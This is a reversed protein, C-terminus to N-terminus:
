NVLDLTYLSEESVPDRFGGCLYAFLKVDVVIEREGGVNTGYFGHIVSISHHQVEGHRRAPSGATGRALALSLGDVVDGRM